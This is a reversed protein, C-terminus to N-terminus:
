RIYVNYPLQKHNYRYIDIREYSPYLAWLTVIGIILAIIYAKKKTFTKIGKNILIGLVM